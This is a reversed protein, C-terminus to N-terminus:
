SGLQQGLLLGYDLRLFQDAYDSPQRPTSVPVRKWALRADGGAMDRPGLELSSSVPPARQRGNGAGSLPQGNVAPLM